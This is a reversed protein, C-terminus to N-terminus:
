ISLLMVSRNDLIGFGGERWGYVGSRGQRHLNGDEFIQLQQKVPMLMVDSRTKDIGVAIELKGASLQGGIQNLYFNQYEQQEGLEDIDHLNVGFVRLLKNSGDDALYLERRTFEDALDVGWNRIDEVAEPSMYIDTLKSRNNTASNGGGNRRMIVKALSVVRKTFQGSGADSDYVVINRDAAAALLTHWGDDNNKKTIMSEFVEMARGVIDWRANESYRLLWDIAAAIKYTPVMVFDSDVTLQPVYGQNPMTWATFDKQTGPAIFDLPYEITSGNTGSVDVSTYMDLIDGALLGKRLPVEVAKAIMQLAANATETHGSGARKLLAIMEPTPKSFDFSM